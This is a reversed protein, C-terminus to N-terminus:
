HKSPSSDAILNMLVNIATNINRASVKSNLIEAKDLAAAISVTQLPDYKGTASLQRCASLGGMLVKYDPSSTLGELESAFGIVGLSEGVGLVLETCPENKEMLFLRIKQTTIDSHLKAKAVARAVPNLGVNRSVRTIAM